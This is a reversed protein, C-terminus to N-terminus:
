LASSGFSMVAQALLQPDNMGVYRTCFRSMGAVFFAAGMWMGFRNGGFLATLQVVVAALLVFSILSIMRGAFINDGILKGALGVIYFSLPPYNNTTLETLPPYLVGGSSAMHQWHADWGENENIEVNIFARRVPWAFFWIALISLFAAVVYSPNAKLFSLVHFSRTGPAQKSGPLSELIAYDEEAAQTGAEGSPNSSLPHPM